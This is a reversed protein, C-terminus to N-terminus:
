ADNMRQLNEDGCKVCETVRYPERSFEQNTQKTSETKLEISVNHPTRVGCIDCYETLETLGTESKSM